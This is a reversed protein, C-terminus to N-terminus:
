LDGNSGLNLRPDAYLKSKGRFDPTLYPMLYPALDPIFFM